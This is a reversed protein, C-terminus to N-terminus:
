LELHHMISVGFVKAKREACHHTSKHRFPYNTCIWTKEETKPNVMVNKFKPCGHGDLNKVEKGFLNSFTKCKESGKAFVEAKMNKSLCNPLESYDLNGSNWMIGHLNKTFWFTQKTSKYKKPPQFCYVQVKGAFIDGMDKIVKSDAPEVDLVVICSM